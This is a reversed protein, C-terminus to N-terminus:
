NFGFRLTLKAARVGTAGLIKGYTPYPTFTGNANVYGGNDTDVSVMSWGLANFVDVYVGIDGRGVRFKKELRLDLTDTALGRVSGLPQALVSSSLADPVFGQVTAPYYVTIWRSSPAGDMHRFYASLNFGYPLIVSGMLKIQLPRDWTLRGWRNVLWNPNYVGLNGQSDYYGAQMNGWQKSYIVSGSFLWNGAMRKFVLFELAWYKRKLEEINTRYGLYGPTGKKLAYATLEADDATGFVRDNGPEKFTYPLWMDGGIPRNADKEEQLNKNDKLIFNLGVSMNPFLEHTIGTTFEQVYPASLNPDITKAYQAPDSVVVPVSQVLYRDVGVADLEGNRNDDWWRVTARKDFSPHLGLLNNALFPEAYRSFTAKLATKGNGFVDYSVGIRPQWENWVIIDKVEPFIKNDQWFLEPVLENILGGEWVDYWGQHHEQPRTAHTSDYRLGLSLTLRNAITIQDQIFASMRWSKVLLELDGRNRPYNAVQFQGMYPTSDNYNWPTGAYWYRRYPNTQTSEQGTKWTEFEMGAKFQHNGGLLNEQFRTLLLSAGFKERWYLQWQQDWHEGWYRSTARDYYAPGSIGGLESGNNLGIDMLRYVYGVRLDAFTDKNIIYTLVGSATHAYDFYNKVGEYPLNWGSNWPVPDEDTYTGQYMAVFKLSPSFGVTLKGLGAYETNKRNYQPQSKGQPDTFPIFPEGRKFGTTQPNLFFWVKDKIIPGGFTISFDTNYEDMIPTGLGMASYQRPSIVSKQLTKGTYTASFGGSFRNGGSKTVVNIYAASSQGIEASLGGIIFEVEDIADFAVQKSPYGQQPDTLNVGDLAYSTQQITGGHVSAMKRYNIGEDVVSPASKVVEYIDRAIPINRIIDATVSSAIKSSGVDVVPSPATVTVAEVLVSEKMTLDITVIMGVRVVIGPREATQFGNLEAKIIYEGPPCAPFRFDGTDTSVFSQTGMMVRSSLTLTVGPLATGQEDATKVKGRISGTQTQAFFFVPLAAILILIVAVKLSQEKM